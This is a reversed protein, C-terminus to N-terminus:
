PLYAENVTGVTTEFCVWMDAPFIPAPLLQDWSIILRYDFAPSIQKSMEGSFNTTSGSGVTSQAGGATIRVITGRWRDGEICCDKTSVKVTGNDPSELTFSHTTGATPFSLLYEVGPCIPGTTAVGPGLTNDQAQVTAGTALILGLMVAIALVYSPLKM